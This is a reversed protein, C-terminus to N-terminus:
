EIMAYSCPLGLVKTLDLIQKQNINQPYSNNQQLNLKSIARNKHNLNNLLRCPSFMAKLHTYLIDLFDFRSM